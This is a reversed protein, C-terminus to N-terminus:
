GQARGGSITPVGLLKTVGKFPKLLGLCTELLTTKGYGNPGTVVVLEGESISLNVRKLAPRKVDQYTVHIDRLEVRIDGL